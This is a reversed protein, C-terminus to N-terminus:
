GGSLPPYPPNTKLAIATAEVRNKIMIKELISKAVKRNRASVWDSM